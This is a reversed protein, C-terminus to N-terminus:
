WLNFTEKFGVEIKKWWFKRTADPIEKHLGRSLTIGKLLTRFQMLRPLHLYFDLFTPSEARQQLQQSLKTTCTLCVSPTRATEIGAFSEKQKTELTSEINRRHHNRELKPSFIVSAKSRQLIPITLRFFSRSPEM